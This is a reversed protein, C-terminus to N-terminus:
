CVQKAPELLLSPQGGRGPCSLTALWAPVLWIGCRNASPTREAFTTLLRLRQAVRAQHVEGPALLDVKQREVRGVPRKADGAFPPFLPYSQLPRRLQANLGATGQPSPGTSTIKPSVPYRKSM